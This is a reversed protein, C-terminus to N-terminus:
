SSCQAYQKDELDKILQELDLTESDLMPLDWRKSIGEYAVRLKDINLVKYEDEDGRLNLRESLCATSANLILIQWGSDLYHNLLKQYESLKLKSHRQFVTSYVLESLFCRDSVINNLQCKHVYDIFEKSGKETMVLIDCGFHDALKRVLTTKGAGDPGDIIIKVVDGREKSFETNKEM